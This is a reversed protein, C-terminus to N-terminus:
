INEIESNILDISIRQVGDLKTDSHSHCSATKSTLILKWVNRRGHIIRGSRTGILSVV